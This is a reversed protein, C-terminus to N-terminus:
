RPQRCSMSLRQIGLSRFDVQVMQLNKRFLLYHFRNRPRHVIHTLKGGDRVQSQADLTTILIVSVLGPSGQTRHNTAVPGRAEGEAIEREHPRYLM